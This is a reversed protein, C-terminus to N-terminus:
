KRIELGFEKELKAFVRGMLKDVVADQLTKTRDLITLNLLYSKQNAGIKDGKYVDSIGVNQILKPNASQIAKALEAFGVNEPVIASIDRSVAPFKPIPTYSVKARKYYKVLLDWKVEAFFVEGKIDHTQLLKPNVSGLRAIVKEGKVLELGYAFIPTNEIERIDYSFGFWKAMREMERMMTFFSSKPQKTGWNEPLSNGTMYFALWEQESFKGEEDGEGAAYAYTKGFDFLRLDNNKRNHNYAIVDLGTYVMQDRLLALEESLNNILNATTETQLRLPVLPNTILENWGSGALNDFYKQRLANADLDMKLNLAMRNQAPYPVNNYGYLRLIEEMVDQPRTVDVRYPPVKLALTTGEANSEAEIDLTALIAAIEDAGFEMGMLRNAKAIDLTIDFHPFDQQGNDNVASVKGGALEVILNAARIAAVKTINPDAGREFRYSADTKVSLHAGTRRIGSPEFYASELYINQTEDSVESNQGGIIGAAAVPGNADCIMLDKSARIDRELDDLTTFKTDQELTRVVIENGRINDANFAHLPQGLEHMVFNTIDVVNNIPRLGVAKLRHQLWEPSEAVKIGQIYIGVYRPCKEPGPLSVKIPNDILGDTPMEITPLKAKEGLLAAVDRAVGFHSAADVRNPTLGIELVADSALEFYDAAAMGVPTSPPLVLIGDHSEGLGLEDEACIMGRSVEGRIKAKKIQFPDGENPHLTAGVLAVIVKQGAAVNPAGCVIPLLEEGGVDVTTLNLKDAGPHKICTKVEGVVVSELGGPHLDYKEIGEVELGGMTLRNSLDENSWDFDIYQKLWNVSIKM